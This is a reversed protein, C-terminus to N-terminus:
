RLYTQCILEVCQGDTLENGRDQGERCQKMAAAVTEWQDQSFGIKNGHAGAGPMDTEAPPTWDAALLPDIVYDPFVMRALADDDGLSKLLTALAESDQAAMAALQDKTLTAKRAEAEDFDTVNVEIETDAGYRQILLSKRLHGDTLRLTGEPTEYVDPYGYFGLEDIAGALADQQGQPHTRFNWPADEIDAM